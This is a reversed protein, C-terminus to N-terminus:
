GGRTRSTFDSRDGLRDCKHTWQLLVGHASGGFLVLTARLVGHNERAAGSERHAPDHLLIISPCAHLSIKFTVLM